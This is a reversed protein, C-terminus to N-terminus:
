KTFTEVVKSVKNWYEAREKNPHYVYEVNMEICFMRAHKYGFKMILEEAKEQIKLDESNM